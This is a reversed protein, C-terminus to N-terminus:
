PWTILSMKSVEIADRLTTILDAIIQQQEITAKSLADRLGMAVMEVKASFAPTASITNVSVLDSFLKSDLLRDLRQDCLRANCVEDLAM